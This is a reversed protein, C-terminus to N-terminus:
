EFAEKLLAKKLNAAAEAAQRALASIGDARKRATDLRSVIARQVSLPPLPFKISSLIANNLNPITTGIASSQMQAICYRSTIVKHFYEPLVQKRLHLFFCGTGCLWGVQDEEVIAARGMEGRRGIVVDHFSLRYTSLRNATEQSVAMEESPVIKGNIIHMPNVIPIGGIVYDQKHLASGYPGTSITECVDGLRVMPWQPSPASPDRPTSSRRSGRSCSSDSTGSTEGTGSTREAFEENLSAKFSLEANQAIAAFRKELAGARALASDLRAVIARQTALPPLPLAFDAIDSFKLNNINTGDTLSQVLLKFQPAAMCHYLYRAEIAPKPVILGMFGGFAYGYDKDILAVKGLHAKSGNAM